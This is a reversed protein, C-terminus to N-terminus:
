AVQNDSWDIFKKVAEDVIVGASQVTLPASEGWVFRVDHVFQGRLVFNDSVILGTDTKQVFLDFTDDGAPRIVPSDIRQFSDGNNTYTQCSGAIAKLGDFATKADAPDSFGHVSTTLSLTHGGDQIETLYGADAGPEPSDEGCVSRLKYGKLDLTDGGVYDGSLLANFDSISFVPM